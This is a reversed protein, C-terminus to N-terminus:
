ASVGTASDLPPVPERFRLFLNEGRRASGYEIDLSADVYVDATKRPHEANPSYRAYWSLDDTM